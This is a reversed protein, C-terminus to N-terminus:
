SSGANDTSALVSRSIGGDAERVLAVLSEPTEVFMAEGGPHELNKRIVNQCHVNGATTPQRQRTHGVVQPPADASLYKFDLWVLGADPGKPHGSGAGLVRSFQETVYRQTAADDATGLTELLMEAAEILSENVATTDYPENAGAHAYTYTHGDYAAVVHGGCIAECLRRRQDISVQGSYWHKFSFRAPTFAIAEHNGLTVRVRGRPAEKLLRSVLALVGDNAPGRDILDGNFVLVYNNGAWHLQGDASPTVVPDYAPHDSLTTLARRAAELYGHIDSISVIAPTDAGDATVGAVSDRVPRALADDNSLTFM